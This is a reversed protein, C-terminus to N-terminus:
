DQEKKIKLDGTAPQKEGEKKTGRPAFPIGGGGQYQYQFLGGKKAPMPTAAPTAVPTNVNTPMWHLKEQPNVTVPDPGEPQYAIFDSAKRAHGAGKNGLPSSPFDAPSYGGRPPSSMESTGRTMFSVDSAAALQLPSTDGTNGSYPEASSSDRASTDVSITPKPKEAAAAAAAAAAQKARAEKQSATILNIKIKKMGSTIKDVSPNPPETSPVAPIPPAAKTRAATKAKPTPTTARRTATKPTRPPIPEKRTQSRSRTKPVSIGAGAGGDPQGAVIKDLNAPLPPVAPEERDPSFPGPTASLRRSSRRSTRSGPRGGPEATAPRPTSNAEALSKARPTKASVRRPTSYASKNGRGGGTDGDEISAMPRSRRERLAMKAAVGGPTPPLPPLGMLSAQRDRRARSAEANLEEAKCSDTQRDSPIILKSLEHAAVSWHVDPIPAPAGPVPKPRNSSLGSLSMRMKAPDSSRASASATPTFFNPGESARPKRPPSAPAMLGEIKDLNRSSWWNPDYKHLLGPIEDKVDEKTDATEQKVKINTNICQDAVLGSLHSFTGSFLARDSYGGELVSIVRGDTGLGEENAIKVIDQTLRAYFETPVNVQHRQMGSSEWESADFGASFFIVAKPHQHNARVAEAQLRLYNRTKELIISYKTEYIEWFEAESKWPQLHVNWISQGHANDICLSANKVKEEDGMECPYSNIDHLSFYGISTKKWSAIGKTTAQARSNHEWTIAQSGDGHHLDFDIIAAHTLGQTLIAHMIGVHVNNVWCFGSPHSASCHHGPPRIGVFARNTPTSPDMVVDVADCVAGMAGEMADLSEGCLYLDGSHLEQAPVDREIEPRQLEKGGMALVAEAQECMYKLEEMWRVGHVNTVAPSTVSLRRNSKQVRFPIRPLAHVDTNPHAPYAGDRHREGLHVYAMSVGLISAKIREPREVITSLM